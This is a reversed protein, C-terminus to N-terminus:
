KQDAVQEKSMANVDMFGLEWVHGDLDEFSRGYMFDNGPIATPDQKGGAAEAATVIEDVASKSSASLCLLVETTSGAEAITKSTPIFTTFRDKTMIQLTNLLFGLESVYHLYWLM